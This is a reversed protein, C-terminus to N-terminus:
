HTELDQLIAGVDEGSLKDLPRVKNRMFVLVKIANEPTAYDPLHLRLFRLATEVDEEKYQYNDDKM